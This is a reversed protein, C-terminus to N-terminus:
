VAARQEKHIFSGIMHQAKEKASAPSFFAGNRNNQLNPKELKPFDADSNSGFFNCCSTCPMIIICVHGVIKFYFMKELVDRLNLFATMFAPPNCSTLWVNILKDKELLKYLQRLEM